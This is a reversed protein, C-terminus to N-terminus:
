HSQDRGSKAIFLEEPENMLCINASCKCIDAMLHKKQIKEYAFKVVSKFYLQSDLKSM